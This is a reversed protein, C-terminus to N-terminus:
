RGPWIRVSSRADSTSGATRMTRASRIQLNRGGHSISDSSSRAMRASSLLWRTTSRALAKRRLCLRRTFSATMSRALDASGFKWRRRWM